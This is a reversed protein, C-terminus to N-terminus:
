SFEPDSWAPSPRECNLAIKFVKSGYKQKLYADLSYYPRELWHAPITKPTNQKQKM